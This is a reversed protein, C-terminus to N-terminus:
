SKKLENWRKEVVSWVNEVSIADLALREDEDTYEPLLYPSKITRHIEGFPSWDLPDTSGLLAVIPTNVASAVNMPGTCVSIFLGCHEIVAGLQAISNTNPSLIANNGISDVIGKALTLENSGWTILIKVNFEDILKKSLQIYREPLWARNSKSAGPHICITKEKTLSNFIFFDGAFKKDKDSLFIIPNEEGAKLGITKIIDLNRFVEHYGGLPHNLNHTFFNYFSNEKYGVRIKAGTLYTILGARESKWKLNIVLDFKKKRLKSILLLQKFISENVRRGSKKLYIYEDILFGKPLFEDMLSNALMTIKANPYNDRVAKITSTSMILDGLAGWKIILINQADPIIM